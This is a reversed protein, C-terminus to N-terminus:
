GSDKSEKRCRSTTLEPLTLTVEKGTGSTEALRKVDSEHVLGRKDPPVNLLLV